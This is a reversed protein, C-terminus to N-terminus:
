CPADEDAPGILGEVKGFLRSPEFPKYLIDTQGDTKWMRAIEDSRMDFSDPYGTVFLVPIIKIASKFERFIEFGTMGPMVIDLLVLDPPNERIRRLGDAPDIATEVEYGKSKLMRAYLGLIQADDDIAVIRKMDSERVPRRGERRRM